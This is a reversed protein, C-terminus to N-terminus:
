GHDVGVARYIVYNVFAYSTPMGVLGFGRLKRGHKFNFSHPMRM